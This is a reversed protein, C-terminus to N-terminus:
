PAGFTGPGLTTTFPTAQQSGQGEDQRNSLVTSQFGRRRAARAIEGRRAEASSISLDPPDPIDADFAGAASAASLATSAAIAVGIAIEAGTALLIQVEAPGLLM